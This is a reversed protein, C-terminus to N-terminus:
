NELQCLVSNKYQLQDKWQGLVCLLTIAFLASKAKVLDSLCKDRSRSLVPPLFGINVGKTEQM